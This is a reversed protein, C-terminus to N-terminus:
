SRSIEILRPGGARKAAQRAYIRRSSRARPAARSRNANRLPLLAPDPVEGPADVPLRPTRSRDGAANAYITAAVEEGLREDPVGYVCAEVVAPHEQLAYEVAGCGINEGGRIVLDKIRDVIFV